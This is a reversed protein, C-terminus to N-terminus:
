RLFDHGGSRAVGGINAELLPQVAPVAQVVPALQGNMDKKIILGIDNTELMTKGYEKVVLQAASPICDGIEGRLAKEIGAANDQSLSLALRDTTVSLVPKGKLTILISVESSALKEINSEFKTLGLEEEIELTAKKITSHDHYNDIRDGYFDVAHAVIHLHEHDHDHRKHDITVWVTNSYGMKEMFKKASERKVEDSVVGDSPDFALSFHRVNLTTDRNLRSQSLWTDSLEHLLPKRSETTVLLSTYIAEDISSGSINGGLIRANKENKLLYKFLGLANAGKTGKGVLVLSWRKAFVSAALRQTSSV